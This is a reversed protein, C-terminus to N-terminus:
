QVRMKPEVYKMGTIFFFDKEEPVPIMKHTESKWLYGDHCYYGRDKIETVMRKSFLDSGTRLMWMLGFNNEDCMFLDLKIGEPLIRQTYKGTAEGKVKTFSNVLNIFGQYRRIEPAKFLGPPYVKITLPICVIEIDGCDAKLRRVSGGVRCRKEVCFPKLLEWYKKAIDYARKFEM